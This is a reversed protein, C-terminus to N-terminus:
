SVQYLIKVSSMNPIQSDSGDVGISIFYLKSLCLAQIRVIKLMVIAGALVAKLKECITGSAVSFVKMVPSVHRCAM